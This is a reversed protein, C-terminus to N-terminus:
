IPIGKWLSQLIVHFDRLVGAIFVTTCVDDLLSVIWGSRAFRLASLLSLTDICNSISASFCVFMLLSCPALADSVSHLVIPLLRFYSMISFASLTRLSILAFWRASCCTNLELLIEAVFPLYAFM